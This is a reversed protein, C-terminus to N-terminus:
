GKSVKLTFTAWEHRVRQSGQCVYDMSNELGSCQLPYAKGEGPSRGLGPTSSLVGVNCSSEKGASGGPFSEAMLSDFLSVPKTCLIDAEDQSQWWSGRHTKELPCLGLQSQPSTERSTQGRGLGTGWGWCFNYFPGGEVHAEFHCKLSESWSLCSWFHNQFLCNFSM